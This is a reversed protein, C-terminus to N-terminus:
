EQRFRCVRTDGQSGAQGKLFDAAGDNPDVVWCFEHGTMTTGAEEGWFDCDLVHLLRSRLLVEIEYDVDAKDGAGRPGGAHHWEDALLKGACIVEKVVRDLLNRLDM